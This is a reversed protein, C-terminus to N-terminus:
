FFFFEYLFKEPGIVPTETQLQFKAIFMRSCIYIPQLYRSCNVVAFTGSHVVLQPLIRCNINHPHLLKTAIENICKSFM